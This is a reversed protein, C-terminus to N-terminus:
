EVLMPVRYWLPKGCLNYKRSKGSINYKRFKGSRFVCHTVFCSVQLPQSTMRYFKTRVEQGTERGSLPAEFYSAREADERRLLEALRGASKENKFVSEDYNNDHGGCEDGSGATLSVTLAFIFCARSM